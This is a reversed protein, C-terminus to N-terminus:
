GQDLAERVKLALDKKSFPKPIFHVGEQLVGRHVIVNATYGSMFLTKLEPHFFSRLENSLERGNMGPMVVDTILLHISGRHKGAISIAEGPTNAALTKYGLNDLMKKVLKLISPDDEVLLLTEGTSEPLISSVERHNTNMDGQYRRLYVRIATGKGVESYINIIGDNQKVIGYVTAMGLGTGRGIEKTTFFPEFLKETTKKDMGCGDDSVSIMAYDGPSFDQHDIVYADDFQINGTEITITGVGNIADRANVCLNAMIQDVQSPDLKVPWLDPEPLWVLEIDEGILRRIMKLMSEVSDNLDVVKPSIPQQRSFALLQGTIKASRRAAKLIESIDGALTSEPHTRELALEANGIIISLMNNFDHAVGGALRGISEIKQIQHLQEELQKERTQSQISETMDRLFVLAGAQGEYEFPVASAEVIVPSGDVRLCVEVIRPVAKKDERLVRIRECVSDKCDPHIQDIVLKGVLSEAQSVGFLNLAAQNLYAFRGKTQIFIADPANEVLLRFQKESKRLSAEMNIRHLAVAVLDSVSKMVEIEAESFYERSRTGFSLTGILKDQILMPHCCYAKIGYYKVLSTLPDDRNQINERIMRKKTQAACGCVAVGYDLWEIKRAEEPPIGAYANLHLKNQDPDALFNFFAHCDILDMVEKCLEEIIGQPNESALLRSATKSLIENRRANWQLSKEMQERDSIDLVAKRKMRNVMLQEKLHSDGDGNTIERQNKKKAKSSFPPRTM